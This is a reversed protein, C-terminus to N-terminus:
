ILIWGARQNIRRRETNKGTSQIQGCMSCSAAKELAFSLFGSMLLPVAKQEM